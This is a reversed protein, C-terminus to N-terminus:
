RHNQEHKRYKILFFTLRLAVYASVGAVVHSWITGTEIALSGFIYCLVLSFFILLVGATKNNIWLNDALDIKKSKVLSKKM